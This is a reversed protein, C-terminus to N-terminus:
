LLRQRLNDETLNDIRILKDRSKEGRLLVVTRAPLNLKEALFRILAANAKGEVAPARLKIKIARDHGGRSSATALEGVVSDVKANPVLHIRLTAM